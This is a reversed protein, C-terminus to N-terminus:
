LFKKLFAEDGPAALLYIMGNQTWTVTALKNVQTFQPPGAVPAGPAANGDTIFLFLDTKDGPALPRGSHFCVMAVRHGQWILVGCGTNTATALPKPLMYDSYAQHQALYARIAPVSNTELDMGYARQATKIMRSRYAAFGAESEGPSGRLLWFGAAVLILAACVTAAIVAPRRLQAAFAANYESIIQERLGAPPSITQFGARIASQTACYPAFWRALEADTRTLALAGAFEPNEADNTWPRYAALISRAEDHTM